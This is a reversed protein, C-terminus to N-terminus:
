VSSRSTSRVGISSSSSGTAKSCSEQCKRSMVGSPPRSASIQPVRMADTRNVTASCHYLRRSPVGQTESTRRRGAQVGEPRAHARCPCNGPAAPRATARRPARTGHLARHHRPAAGNLPARNRSRIRGHRRTAPAAPRSSRVPDRRCAPPRRATLGADQWRGTRGEPSRPDRVRARLRSRRIGEAGASSIEGDTGTETENM